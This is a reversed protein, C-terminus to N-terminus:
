RRSKKVRVISPSRYLIHLEENHLRRCKWNEDKKPGFIRWPTRNGFVKPKCKELLAVLYPSGIPQCQCSTHCPFWCQFIVLLSLICFYHIMLRILGIGANIGIGELDMRINDEWRLRPMGLPRKGTPKSTLIKFASRGEEMRAVHGAWRLRRSKIVRVINPSRYM